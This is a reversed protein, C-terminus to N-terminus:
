EGYKLQLQFLKPFEPYYEGRPGTFGAGSRKIVVAKYGGRSNPINVMFENPLTSPPAPLPISVTGPTFVLPGDLYGPGIPGNEDPGIYNKRNIYESYTHDRGSGYYDWDSYAQCITPMLFTSLLIIRKFKNLM